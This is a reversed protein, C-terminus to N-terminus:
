SHVFWLMYNINAMLHLDFIFMEVEILTKGNANRGKRQLAM